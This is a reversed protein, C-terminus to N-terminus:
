HPFYTCIICLLKFNNNSMEMHNETSFGVLLWGVYMSAVLQTQRM